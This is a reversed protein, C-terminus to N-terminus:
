LIAARLARPVQAGVHGIGLASEPLPQTAPLESAVLKSSLYGDARIDDIEGAQLGPQDDLDIPTLMQTTCLVPHSVGPQHGLTIQDQTEPIVLDQLLRGVYQPM